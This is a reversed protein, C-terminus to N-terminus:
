NSYSKCKILLYTIVFQRRYNRFRLDYEVVLNTYTESSTTFRPVCTSTCSARVLAGFGSETM